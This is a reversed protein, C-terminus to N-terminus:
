HRLTQQHHTCGSHLYVRVNQKKLNQQCWTNWLTQTGIQMKKGIISIPKEKAAEPRPLHWILLPPQQFSVLFPFVTEAQETLYGRRSDKNGTKSTAATQFVFSIGSSYLIFFSFAAFTRCTELTISHVTAFTCQKLALFTAWCGQTTKWTLM